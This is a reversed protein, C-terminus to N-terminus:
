PEVHIRSTEGGEITVRKTSSYRGLSAFYVKVLYTGPMLKVDLRPTSGAPKSNVYVTGVQISTVRLIGKGGLNKTSKTSKTSKTVARRRHRRRSSGKTRRRLAAVITIPRGAQATVPMSYSDYGKLELELRCVDGARAPVDAPTVLGTDRGCLFIAAGPPQSQVHIISEALGGQDPVGVRLGYDIQPQAAAHPDEEIDLPRDVLVLTVALILGALVVAGVGLLTRLSPRTRGASRDSGRAGRADAGVVTEAQNAFFGTSMTPAALPNGAEAQTPRLDPAAHTPVDDEGGGSLIDTPQRHLQHPQQRQQRPPPRIGPPLVPGSRQATPVSQGDDVIDSDSLSYWAHTAEDDGPFSASTSPTSREMPPISTEDTPLADLASTAVEELPNTPALEATDPPQTPDHGSSHTPAYAVWGDLDSRTEALAGRPPVDATTPVHRQGPSRVLPTGQDSSRPAPMPAQMGVGSFSGSRRRRRDADFLEQMLSALPNRGFRVGQKELFGLLADRFAGATAYRGSPKLALAKKILKELASPLDTRYSRLPEFEARRMRRLVETDPVDLSHPEGRLLEYLVVGAAFVDTRHDIKGGSAQEPSMYRFKGKIVGAETHVLRMRAKAIGFDIIKVEGEYSILINQPSIDRHIIGLRQGSADEKRHAYDLGALVETVIYVAIEIPLEQGARICHDQLTRVDEGSIFEMALYYSNDVSGLDLVQCVNTHTLQATIRAEDILMQVFEMDENLRPHLRKIVVPKIFGAEGHVTALFVEAMGGFALRETLKYKGFTEHIATDM